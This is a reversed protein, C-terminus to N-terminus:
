RGRESDRKGYAIILEKRNAKGVKAFVRSLHTKVTEVGMLLEKGVQPNTLGGAVLEAVRAETPTLADWGVRTSTHTVRVRRSYEAAETLTLAAGEASASTYADAGLTARCEASADDLLRQLCPYLVLSRESRFAACAGFLRTAANAHGALTLIRGTCELIFVMDRLAHQALAIELAEHALSRASAIDLAAASQEARALLNFACRTPGANAFLADDYGPKGAAVLAYLDHRGLGDLGLTRAEGLARRYMEDAADVDDAILLRVSAFMGSMVSGVANEEIEASRRVRKEFEEPLGFGLDVDALAAFSSALNTINRNGYRAISPNALITQAVSAEGRSWLVIARSVDLASSYIPGIRKRDVGDLLRDVLELDGQYAAVFALQLKADLAWAADHHELEEVVQTVDHLVPAGSLAFIALMTCRAVAAGLPQNAENSAQALKSLVELHGMPGGNLLTMRVRILLLRWRDDPEIQEELRDLLAFAATALPAWMVLDVCPVLATLANMAVTPQHDEIATELAALLNSREAEIADLLEVEGGWLLLDRTDVAWELFYTSHQRRTREHEVPDARLKSAAFQRVTELLGFRVGSATDITHVLSHDVLRDLAEFVEFSDLHEREEAYVAGATDLTWGDVFVSVRRLLAQEISSLLDYSWTISADLTQQRPMVAKSGGSLLRFADDLGALIRQPGLMRVRAAALEIALPIGDLRHCIEAVFQANSTTLEFDQRARSARDCFLRVSDCRSLDELIAGKSHREPLAMPPVRWAREGPVNLMVRSTALVHLSPAHHLLRNVVQAVTGIVHECNDVILLCRQDVLKRRVAEELDTRAAESIGFAARIASEVGDADLPALEVWWVGAPFQGILEAGVQQALRTKGAGGTGTATVLRDALVLETLEAIEPERGIFPSLSVPLSHPFSDATMLGDFTEDLGPVVLQWVHEPRELDRLRHEGLSRFEFWDRCQDLALDHTAGTVLVQGGHGIARLRAARIIAQGAYNAEDRLFAEGTHVAMRIRLPERTPWDEEAFAVQASTAAGLADSPRTFVAVVSDGEGQEQPRVGAHARVADELLDYHRVIAARMAHDDESEWLRTSGAVDTLLFTVTGLPLVLTQERSPIHTDNTVEGPAHLAMTAERENSSGRMPFTTQSRDNDKV